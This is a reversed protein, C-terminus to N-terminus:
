GRSHRIALTVIGLSFTLIGCSLWIATSFDGDHLTAGAAAPGFGTGFTQIAGMACVIRGRGDAECCLGSLLPQAFNWGFLLLVAAAIFNTAPVTGLFLQFSLLSVIGSLGLPITRGWRSPIWGALAAGLVGALTGLSLGQAVTDPGLGSAQGIRETYSWMAGTAFFYFFVGILAAIALGWKIRGEATFIDDERRGDPFFFLCAGCAIAAIANALFLREPSFHTILWPMSYLLMSSVVAGAVLYISFARDPNSARGLAAFSFGIAIGEGAGAVVRAAAIAAYSAAFGTIVNGLAILVLGAGVAIRWDCRTLLFTSIGITVAMANIDWAAIYGLHANDLHTGAAIVALFGPTIFIVLAGIIGVIVASALGAKSLREARTAYQALADAPSSLEM